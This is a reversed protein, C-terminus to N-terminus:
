LQISTQISKTVLLTVRRGESSLFLAVPLYNGSIKYGCTVATYQLMVNYVTHLKDLSIPKFKSTNITRTYRPLLDFVVPFIAFKWRRFVIGYM